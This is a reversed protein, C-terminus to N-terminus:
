GNMPGLAVIHDRLKNCAPGMLAANQGGKEFRYPITTIGALDSPLKVDKGRPEMLIARTRGLRGMFLGLEFIVNDRPAPWMEDRSEVFDDAHAIAIAFDANDVAAELDDITYNAVKFCGATWLEVFFADHEFATEIIRAIPLAEVSSIIFVRVRERYAGINSNRQLLRRSLEKAISLYIQPFQCGLASFVPESLKMAVVVDEAIVSASRAQTPQIAAMEGVHDGASRKGIRRGNVVVDCVGSLILFVDNSHDGQQIIVEDAAFECLEGADAVQAALEPIGALMKQRSLEDVLIRRGSDGEFREIM